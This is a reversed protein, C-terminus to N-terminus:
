ADELYNSVLQTLSEACHPAIKIGYGGLASFTFLGPKQQSAIVAPLRSPQFSRVGATIQVSDLPAHDFWQRMAQLSSKVADQDPIERGALCPRDDVPSLFWEGDFPRAFFADSIEHVMPIGSLNQNSPIRAWIATRARNDITLTPEGALTAIEDAWAGAANIVARSDIVQGNETVVKWGEAEQTIGVVRSGSRIAVGKQGLYLKLDKILRVIDIFGHESDFAYADGAKKILGLPKLREEAESSPIIELPKGNSKTREITKIFALEQGKRSLFIKGEFSVYGPGESWFPRNLITLSQEALSCVESSGFHLSFSAANKGTAHLAIGLERELLVVRLGARAQYAAAMLGAIGGGIIAVDFKTM